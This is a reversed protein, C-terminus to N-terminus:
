RHGNSALVVAFNQNFAFLARSRQLNADPALALSAYKQIENM